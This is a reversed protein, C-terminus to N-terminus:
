LCDYLRILINKGKIMDTDIFGPAVLNVRINRSGLESAL